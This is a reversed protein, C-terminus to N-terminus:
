DIVQDGDGHWILNFQHLQPTIEKKTQGILNPVELERMEDWSREKEHIRPSDKALVEFLEGVIPAAITGGFQSPGKPGDIAIYILYEPEDIPAFGIFSM